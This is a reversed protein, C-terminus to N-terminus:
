YSISLSSQAPPCCKKINAIMPNLVEFVKSVIRFLNEFYVAISQNISNFDQRSSDLKSLKTLIKEQQQRIFLIM